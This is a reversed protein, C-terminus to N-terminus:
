QNRLKRQQGAAISRMRDFNGSGVKVIPFKDADQEALVGAPIERFLTAVIVPETIAIEYTGDQTKTIKFKATADGIEKKVAANTLAVDLSPNTSTNVHVNAKYGSVIIDNMAIVVDRALIHTKVDDAIAGDCIARSLETWNTKRARAQDAHLEVTVGKTTDLGANVGVMGAINPVAVSLNADSTLKENVSFSGVGGDPFMKGFLQERNAQSITSAFYTDPLAILANDPITAPDQQAASKLYMTGIGFNGVPTAWFQYNAFDQKLVRQMTDRVQSSYDSTCAVLMALALLAGVQLCNRRM